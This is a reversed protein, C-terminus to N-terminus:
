VMARLSLSSPGPSVMGFEPHRWRVLAEASSLVTKNGRLMNCASKARDFRHAIDAEETLPAVGMRLHIHVDQALDSLGDQIRKLAAEYGERRRCYAYFLDGDSRCTIGDDGLLQLLEQALRFLVRDGFGRGHLENVLHFRDMNLCLADMEWDPHYKEMQQAYEYFFNETYLGTLDDQEAAQMLHRGESLEIIRGVRAQIVEHMDFPKTIFDAAGMQLSKLEASKEATLVIVPIRKLVDDSRLRELVAFGDMVPM